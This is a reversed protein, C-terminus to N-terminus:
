RSPHDGNGGAEGRYAKILAVSLTPGLFLILGIVGVVWSAEVGIFLTVGEALLLVTGLFFGVDRVLADTV